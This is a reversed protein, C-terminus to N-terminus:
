NVHTSGVSISGGTTSTEEVAKARTALLSDGCSGGRSRLSSTRAVGPMRMVGCWDMMLTAACAHAVLNAACEHLEFARQCPTGAQLHAVRRCTSRVAIASQIQLSGSRPSHMASVAAVRM